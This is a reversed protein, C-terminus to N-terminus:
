AAGAGGQVARLNPRALIRALREELTAANFPKRIINEIGIEEGLQLAAHGTMLVARLGPRLSSVIRMLAAGNTGPMVYDVLMADFGGDRQLVALAADADAALEVSYGRETLMEGTMQRVDQDDDVVLIRAQPRNTQRALGFAPRVPSPLSKARPLLLTVTTGEGPESEIRVDGGSQVALGHVQSLGLGSGRGPEKTTFFPEYVHAILEPTMGTGTDAVRVAVYDGPSLSGGVDLPMNRTAITLVGGEPMADRANIALNVIAAEIQSPDVMAPWLDQVLDTQIRISRGLTSGLLNSLAIVTMNLDTPVPLLQQRRSFALLQGTLKGGREATGVATDLLRVLGEQGAPLRARLLELAALITTLLNNFDHAIGGALQGVAQLKQAQRLTAETKEREAMEVQLRKGAEALDRTRSEVRAELTANLEQLERQQRGLAGAMNNFAAALSGFESGPAESLQARATLDGSTWRRAAAILAETPRRVFRQGVVLALLLSILAGTIMLLMGQLTVRDLDALMDPLYMGISVFLRVPAETAPVFGIMRDKGDYGKVVANGRTAANIYPRVAPPFMKGVFKDHDPFRAVTIGNRDGIGITSNAPRKLEGLHTGLWDLSLGVIVLASGSKQTFQLGFPLMAGRTATAPAYTGVHFGGRGILDRIQAAATADAVSGAGKDTSCIVRGEATVVSLAAYSPLDSRLEVLQAACAPNGARVTAFHTIALSLQRAGEAVNAMDANLLEAQRLAEDAIRRQGDTHLNYQTYATVVVAPFTAVCVLIILRTLLNARAFLKGISREEQQAAGM